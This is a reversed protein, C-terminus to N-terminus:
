GRSGAASAPDGRGVQRIGAGAQVAENDAAISARLQTVRGALAPLQRREADEVLSRQAETLRFGTEAALLTQQAQDLHNEADRARAEAETHQQEAEALAADAAQVDAPSCM